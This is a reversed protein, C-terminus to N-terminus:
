PFLVLKAGKEAAEATFDRVKQLCAAQDFLKSGAQVVAVRYNTDSMYFHVM